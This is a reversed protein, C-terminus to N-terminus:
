LRRDIQPRFLSFFREKGQSDTIRNKRIRVDVDLDTRTSPSSSPKTPDSINTTETFGNKLTRTTLRQKDKATSRKDGGEESKEAM